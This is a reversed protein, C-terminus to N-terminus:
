IKMQPLNKVNQPIDICNEKKQRLLSEEGGGGQM